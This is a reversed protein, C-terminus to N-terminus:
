AAAKAREAEDKAQMRLLHDTIREKVGVYELDRGGAIREQIWKEVDSEVWAVRGGLRVSAPFEADAMLRYISTRSLSTRDIVSRLHLLRTTM